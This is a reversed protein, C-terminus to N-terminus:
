AAARRRRLSSGIAGFGAIMMVWAAPEPVYAYNISIGTSPAESGCHDSGDVTTCLFTPESFDSGGGSTAYTATTQSLDIEIPHIFRFEIRFYNVDDIVSVPTAFQYSITLLGPADIYTLTSGPLPAGPNFGVDPLLGVPMTGVGPDIPPADGGISFIGQPGSDAADFQYISPDYAIVTTIGTIDGPAPDEEIAAKQCTVEDKKEKNKCDLYVRNSASFSLKKLANAQPPLALTAAAAVIIALPALRLHSRTPTQSM